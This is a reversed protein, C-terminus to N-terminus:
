AGAAEVALMAEVKAKFRHEGEARLSEKFGEIDSVGLIEHAHEAKAEAELVREILWEVRDWAVANVVQVRIMSRGDDLTTVVADILDVVKLDAGLRVLRPADPKTAFAIRIDRGKIVSAHLRVAEIVQATTM